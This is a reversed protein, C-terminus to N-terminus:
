MIECDGTDVVMEGNETMIGINQGGGGGGGGGAQARRTMIQQALRALVGRTIFADRNGGRRDHDNRSTIEYESAM